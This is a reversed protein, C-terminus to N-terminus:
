YRRSKMTFRLAKQSTWWALNPRSACHAWMKITQTKAGAPLERWSNVPSRKGRSVGLWMHSWRCCWQFILVLICREFTLVKQFLSSLTSGYAQLRMRLLSFPKSMNQFIGSDNRCSEWDVDYRKFFFRHFDIFMLFFVSGAAREGVQGGTGRGPRGDTRPAARPPIPYKYIDCHSIPPMSTWYISKSQSIPPMSTWYYSNWYYWILWTSNSISNRDAILWTENGMATKM